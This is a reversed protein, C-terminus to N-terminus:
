VSRATTADTSQTPTLDVAVRARRDTANAVHTRPAPTDPPADQPAAPQPSADGDERPPPTTLGLAKLFAADADNVQLEIGEPPPTYALGEHTHPHYLTITHMPM